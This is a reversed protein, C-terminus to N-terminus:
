FVELIERLTQRAPPQSFRELNHRYERTRALRIPESFDPETLYQALLAPHCLEWNGCNKSAVINCGLMVAEWLIGPAADLRSPSAVVRANGMLAFLAARDVLLGHYTVHGAHEVCEGVVHFNWEPHKLILARALEWNKEIRQWGSAIFLVDIAREGFARRRNVFPTASSCIWEAFWMTEPFLKSTHAPFYHQYLTRIMESHVLVLDACAVAQAERIGELHPRLRFKPDANQKEIDALIETVSDARHELLAHKAQDCGTTMFILRKDPASSKLLLAAIFGIGIVVDPDFARVLQELDPHAATPSFLPHKLILTHVNSLGHPNGLTSGYVTQLYPALEQDILNVFSVDLGQAQLDAFLSYAVTSAGGYGPVEHCGVLFKKPM